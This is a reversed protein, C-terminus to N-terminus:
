HPATEVRRRLRQLQVAEMVAHGADLPGIFPRVWVRRAGVRTRIVLRCGDGDPHLTFSWVWALPTDALELVLTEPADLHRVILHQTASLPVHDGVALTQLEPVIERASGGTLFDGAGILKELQDIAYWGGRGYGMQVLWPWVAEPTADIRIARTTVLEAHPLLDDGPLEAVVETPQAGLHRLSRLAVSAAIAAAVLVAVRRLPRM